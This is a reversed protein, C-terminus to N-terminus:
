NRMLKPQWQFWKHAQLQRLGPNQKNRFACPYSLKPTQHWLVGTEFNELLEEALDDDSGDGTAMPSQPHPENPEFFLKPVASKKEGLIGWCEQTVSSTEETAQTPGLLNM